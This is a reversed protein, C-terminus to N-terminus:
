THSLDACMSKIEGPRDLKYVWASNDWCTISSIISCVLVPSLYKGTNKEPGFETIAPMLLLENQVSTMTTIRQGKRVSDPIPKGQWKKLEPKHDWLDIHSVGGNLNISIVKKVKAKKNFLYDRKEGHLDLHALATLGLIKASCTLIKRRNVTIGDMVDLINNFDTLVYQAKDLILLSKLFM